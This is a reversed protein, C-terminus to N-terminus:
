CLCDEGSRLLCLSVPTSFHAALSSFTRENSIRLSLHPRPFLPSWLPSCIKRSLFVIWWSSFVFIFSNEWSQGLRQHYLRPRIVCVARCHWLSKVPKKATKHVAYFEYRLHLFGNLTYVSGLSRINPQYIPLHDSLALSPSLFLSPRILFSSRLEKHHLVSKRNIRSNWTQTCMSMAQEDPTHTTYSCAASPRCLRQLTDSEVDPPHAGNAGDTQRNNYLMFGKFQAACQQCDGSESVNGSKFFFPSPRLKLHKQPTLLCHLTNM